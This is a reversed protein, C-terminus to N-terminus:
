VESTVHGNLVFRLLSELDEQVGEGELRVVRIDEVLVTLEKLTRALVDYESLVHVAAGEERAGGV